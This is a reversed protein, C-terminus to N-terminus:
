QHDVHTLVHTHQVEVYSGHWESCAFVDGKQWVVRNAQDETVVKIVTAESNEVQKQEPGREEAPPSLARKPTPNTSIPRKLGVQLSKEYVDLNGVYLLTRLEDVDPVRGIDPIFAHCVALLCAYTEELGCRLFPPFSHALM